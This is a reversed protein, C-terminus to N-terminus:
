IRRRRLLVLMGLGGLLATSPEPVVSGNVTVNRFFHNFGGNAVPMALALRFDVSNSGTLSSLNINESTIDGFDTALALANGVFKSGATGVATYTSGGNTAAFLQYQFTGTSNSNNIASQWDFTMNTLDLTNGPAATLTFTYYNATSKLTTPSAWGNSSGALWLDSSAAGEGAPSSGTIYGAFSNRTRFNSTTSDIQNSSLTTTTLDTVPAHASAQTTIATIIAATSTHNTSGFLALVAANAGTSLVALAALAILTNYRAKM